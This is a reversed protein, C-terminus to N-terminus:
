LCAYSTEEKELTPEDWQPPTTSLQHSISVKHCGQCAQSLAFHMKDSAVWGETHEAFGVQETISAQAKISDM